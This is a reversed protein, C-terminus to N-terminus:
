DATKTKTEASSPANSSQMAISSDNPNAKPTRKSRVKLNLTKIFCNSACLHVPKCCKGYLVKGFPFQLCLCILNVTTDFIHFAIHIGRIELNDHLSPVESRIIGIIVVTMTALLAFGACVMYRTILQLLEEEVTHIKMAHMIDINSAQSSPSSPSIPAPASSSPLTQMSPSPEPDDCVASSIRLLQKIFVILVLLSSLINTWTFVSFCRLALTRNVDDWGSLFYYTFIIPTIFQILLGIIFLIKIIVHLGVSGFVRQLRVVFFLNLLALGYAYGNLGVMYTGTHVTLPSTCTNKTQYGRM